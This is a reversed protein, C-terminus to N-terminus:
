AVRPHFGPDRIIEMFGGQDVNCIYITTATGFNQHGM